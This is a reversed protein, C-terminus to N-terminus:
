TIDNVSYIHIRNPRFPFQTSTIWNLIVSDIRFWSLDLIIPSLLLFSIIITNVNNGVNCMINSCGNDDIQRNVSYDFYIYRWKIGKKSKIAIESYIFSISHYLSNWSICHQNLMHLCVTIHMKRCSKFEVFEKLALCVPSLICM